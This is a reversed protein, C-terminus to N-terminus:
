LKFWEIQKPHVAIESVVSSKPEMQEETEKTQGNQSEANKNINGNNKEIVQASQEDTDNVHSTETSIGSPPLLNNDEVKPPPQASEQTLTPANDTINYTPETTTTTTSTNLTETSNTTPTEGHQTTSNMATVNVPKKDGSWNQTTGSQQQNPLIKM